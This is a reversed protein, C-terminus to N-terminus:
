MVAKNESEYAFMEISTKEKKKNLLKIINNINLLCIAQFHYQNIINFVHIGYKTLLVGQIICCKVFYSFILHM